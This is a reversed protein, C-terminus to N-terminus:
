LEKVRPEKGKRSAVVKRIMWIIEAHIPREDEQAAQKVAELVDLPWRVSFQKM